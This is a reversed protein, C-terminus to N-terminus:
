ARYEIWYIAFGLAILAFEFVTLVLLIYVIRRATPKMPVWVRRMYWRWWGYRGWRAHRVLYDQLAAGWAHLSKDVEGTDAAGASPDYADTITLRSGGERPEIRFRTCRKIGRDYRVDIHRESVCEVELTLTLEHQNSLNRFAAEHQGGDTARWYRFELYPNIRYLREIDACFEALQRADLPTDIAVWAADADTM